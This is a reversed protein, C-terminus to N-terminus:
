DRVCGSDPVCGALRKAEAEVEAEADLLGAADQVVARDISRRPPRACWHLAAQATRRRGASRAIRPQGM